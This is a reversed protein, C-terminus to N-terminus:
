GSSGQSYAGGGVHWLLPGTDQGVPPAVAPVVNDLASGLAYSMVGTYGAEFWAIRGETNPDEGLEYERWIRYGFIKIEAWTESAGVIRAWVGYLWYNVEPDKFVHGLVPVSQTNDPLYGSNDATRAGPLSFPTM